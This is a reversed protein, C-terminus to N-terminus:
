TRARCATNVRELPEFIYPGIRMRSSLWTSARSNASIRGLTPLRDWVPRRIAVLFLPPRLLGTHLHFLRVLYRGSNRNAAFLSAQQIHKAFGYLFQQKKMFLLEQRSDGAIQFRM